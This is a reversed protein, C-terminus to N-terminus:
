MLATCTRTSALWSRTTSPLQTAPLRPPSCGSVFLRATPYRVHTPPPSHRTQPSFVFGPVRQMPQPPPYLSIPAAARTQPRFTFFTLHRSRPSGRASHLPTSTLAQTTGRHDF